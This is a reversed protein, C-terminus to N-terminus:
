YNEAFFTYVRYFFIADGWFEVLMYIVSILTLSPQLHAMKFKILNINKEPCIGEQFWVSQM